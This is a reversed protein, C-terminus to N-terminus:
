RPLRGRVVHSGPGVRQPPQGPVIVTATTNPPVTVEVTVDRGSRQWRCAIRGYLCDYHANVWTLDGVIAPRLIIHKFGPQSPDPRIGALGRYLWNDASTFCSHIQSWFGNWQEWMTTAGQEIMYGWSPYTRKQYIDLVLDDRGIESLYEILFLTGLMGTDLHGQCKEQLCRFLNAQVAARESEPTVGVWLPFAYYIQEDAVYRQHTPDYFAGHTAARISQARQRAHEVENTRGLAAAIREVTQWLYVRYCNCFFEAMERTPWNQTDMGRGPPVWDGLFHFGTGWARLVDNTSRRDLYECYGRVADFNEELITRDGYQLYHEWVIRALAGPWPPGGGTRRFPPAVYPLFERKTKLALRWDEAWKAFFNAADFNMMMGPVAVQGDGYGMRERTPCDVYYGGLNLCRQTWRNVEHIRRIRRDSCDFDGAEPLASEILLAVADDKTPVQGLGEVVVYRFGAYNFKNCFVEDPQGASIFESVQHYTQYTNTGGDLRRFNVCSGRHISIPGIPSTCRGDPFLRDAFHMRVRQGPRLMHMRLRIWGSLNRGFDIEYRGEALPTIAVPPIREGIRNGPVRHWVSRGQPSDAFVVRMWGSLNLGPQAWDPIYARADWREGGFNNWRWGGIRSVNSPRCRWNLGTGVVVPHGNVVANLQARLVLREAWGRSVWIGICNTGRRLHRVVDYMVTFTRESSDSVAPMLVDDGVREGNVYLEFYAPSQVTVWAAEPVALLEFEDRFWWAPEGPGAYPFSLTESDRARAVAPQGDLTYEVVLEKVVGRAPDGGFDRFSVRIPVRWEEVWRRVVPTVDLAVKGDLTRYRATTVVLSSTERASNPAAIWHASLERVATTFRAPASWESVNGQADWVRVKWEYRTCPQLPPGRYPVHVSQDSEVKGSDWTGEVVTQYASQQGSDLAWSFRPAPLDIGLPEHWLECRLDCVTVAHAAVAVLWASGVWAKTRKRVAGVEERAWGRLGVVRTCPNSAVVM